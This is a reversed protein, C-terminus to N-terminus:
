LTDKENIVCLGDVIEVEIQYPLDDAKFLANNLERSNANYDGAVTQVYSFIGNREVSLRTKEDGSADNMQDKYSNYINVKAKIESYTDYFYEYRDLVHTANLTRSSIGRVTNAADRAVFCGSFLFAFVICALIMGIMQITASHAFSWNKARELFTKM